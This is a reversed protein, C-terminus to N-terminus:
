ASTSIDAITSGNILLGEFVRKEYTRDPRDLQDKLIAVAADCMRGIPQRITTLDYSSLRATAIGDYGSVSLDDPVRLGLVTRAEDILGLAMMDNACVIATPRNPQELLRHLAASGSEYTFDGVAEGVITAGLAEAAIKIGRVRTRSVMNSVPGAVIGIDRHGLSTLIKILERTQPEPDCFVVDSSIDDFFRNFFVVPTNTEEFREAHERKMHSASIVADVQFQSIQDLIPDVDDETDVTFLMVRLKEESLRQTLAFLVEPYYLNVNGSILVAVINSRQTILGRALANPQWGLEKAAAMVKERTKASASGGPKFCRSVASQSVGALRAVDYSTVRRNTGAKALNNNPPPNKAM